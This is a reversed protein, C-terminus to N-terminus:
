KNGRDRCGRRRCLSPLTQGELANLRWPVFTYSKQHWILVGGYTWLNYVEFILHPCLRNWLSNLLRKNKWLKKGAASIFRETSSDATAFESLDVQWLKESDFHLQYSMGLWKAIQQCKLGLCSYQQRPKLHQCSGFGVANALSVVLRETLTSNSVAFRQFNASLEVSLNMELKWKLIITRWCTYGSEFHHLLIHEDRSLQPNSRGIIINSGFYATNDELCSKKDSLFLHEGFIIAWIVKHSLNKQNKM